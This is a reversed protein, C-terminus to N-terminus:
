VTRFIILASQNSNEDAYGQYKIDILEIDYHEKLWQNITIDLSETFSGSYNHKKFYNIAEEPYDYKKMAELDLANTKPIRFVNYFKPYILKTLIM